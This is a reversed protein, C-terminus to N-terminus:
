EFGASFGYTFGGIGNTASAVLTDVYEVRFPMFAYIISPDDGEELTAEGDIFCEGIGGGQERVYKQVYDQLARVDQAIIAHMSRLPRAENVYKVRVFLRMYGAMQAVQDDVGTHSVDALSVVGVEFHRDQAADLGGANPNEVFSSPSGTDSTAVRAAVATAVHGLIEDVIV